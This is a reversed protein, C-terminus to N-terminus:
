DKKFLFKMSLVWGVLFLNLLVDASYLVGPSISLNIDKLREPSSFNEAEVWSTISLLTITLLFPLIRLLITNM